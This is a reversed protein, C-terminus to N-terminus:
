EERLARMPDLAAARRAPLFSAAVAVATLGAAAAALSLPDGPQMGYLLTRAAGSVVIALLTGAVLGVGLLAGAERLIMRVIDARTAGLAMRVGIQSRRRAVLFSVVGYLGVMALIAALLGFLGSLSAMLRESRLADQLITEFTRFRLIASPSASLIAEKVASIVAAPPLDSRVVVQVDVEPEEDQAEALFVVPSWEERLNTYKADGVVGVIRYVSDAKGGGRIVALDRGIPSRGGALKRSYTETVIAVPPSGVADHEDFDRGALLPTGMVKFYGPSVRNFNALKREPKTVDVRVNENWGAGGVPVIAVGAAGSVGPIARIRELLDRRYALRQPVPLKLAGLEAEAVVIRDRSFGPDLTALNRFTRVFLLAAVLLVLSLAVQSVVLARQMGFRGRSGGAGSGSTRLTEIPATRAAQLAPALGFLLCTLVALGATFGLVRGGPVLDVFLGNTGTTLFSVFLRCLLQAVAAGALTGLGALLLSEALLQRVLRGRSAGLAVRVAMERQRGVARAVMLNALNACAILLVLGSIGMLLLLPSELRRRLSSTGNAAATAGLRFELYQGASVSDFNPPLTERFLAPSIAALQASAREPTWGPKLRGIAGVWWAEAEDIRPKEGGLLSDVGLPLAVDFRRGVEVGFFRAPVVGVIEFPHGDLTITRGLATPSGEYERRWFGESLVVAGSGGRRDDAGTLLRGMLPHVDLTEFFSGSVLLSDVTRAEGSRNLNVRASSWAAIRSFGEQRDRLREWIGYTLDPVGSFGGTRGGEKPVVRVVALEDPRSVPLARLRVADLLQFFATNAGTGLALSILAVAAFGPSRLLQRAGYRFDGLLGGGLTGGPAGAPPVRRERALALLEAGLTGNRLEAVATRRAEGPAAGHAVLEDHRDALHQALEEVIEVQRSPDLPLEDLVERVAPRFDTRDQDDRM